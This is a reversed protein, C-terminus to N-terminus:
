SKCGDRLLYLFRRVCYINTCLKTHVKGRCTEAGIPPWRWTTQLILNRLYDSYRCHYCASVHRPFTCVLSHVLMQQTRLNRYKNISVWAVPHMFWNLNCGDRERCSMKLYFLWENLV